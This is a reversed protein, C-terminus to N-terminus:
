KLKKEVKIGQRKLAADLTDSPTYIADSIHSDEEVDLLASLEKDLEVVQAQKQQALHFLGLAALYESRTITDKM